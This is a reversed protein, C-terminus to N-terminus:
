KACITLKTTSAGMVISATENAFYSRTPRSFLASFAAALFGCSIFNIPKNFLGWKKKWGEEVHSHLLEAEGSDIGACLIKLEGLGLFAYYQEIVSVRDRFTVIGNTEFYEKLIPAFTDEAVEKMLEKADFFSCDDALQTYLSTFHHCHFVTCVNNFYHRRTTEDFHHRVKFNTRKVTVSM